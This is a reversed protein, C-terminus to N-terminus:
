EHSAPKEESADADVMDEEEEEEGEEEEEPEDEPEDDVPTDADVGLTSSAFRGIRSSFDKTDEIQFGSQVLAADLLIMALEELGDTDDAELKSNMSEMIPHHVNIEFTKGM